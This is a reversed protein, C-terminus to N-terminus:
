TFHGPFVRVFPRQRGICYGIGLWVDINREGCCLARGSAGNGAATVIMPNGSQM